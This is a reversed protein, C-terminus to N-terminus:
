ENAVYGLFIIRLEAFGFEAVHVNYLPFFHTSLLSAPLIQYAM